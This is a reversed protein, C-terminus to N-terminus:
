SATTEGQEDDARVDADASRRLDGSRNLGMVAGVLFLPAGLFALGVDYRGIGAVIATCIISLAAFLLLERPRPLKDKM